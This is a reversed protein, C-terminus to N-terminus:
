CEVCTLMRFCILCIYPSLILGKFCGVTQCTVELKSGIAKEFQLIRRNFWAFILFAASETNRTQAQM